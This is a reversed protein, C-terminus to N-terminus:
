LHLTLIAAWKTDGTASICSSIKRLAAAHSREINKHHAGIGRAIERLSWGDAYHLQIVLRERATLTGSM